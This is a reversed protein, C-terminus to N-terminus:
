MKLAIAELDELFQVARSGIESYSPSTAVESNALRGERYEGCIHYALSPGDIIAIKRYQQQKQQQEHEPCGEQDQQSSHEPSKPELELGQLQQEM